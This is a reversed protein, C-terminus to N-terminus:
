FQLMKPMGLVKSDRYRVIIEGVRACTRRGPMTATLMTRM